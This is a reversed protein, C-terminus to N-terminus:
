NELFSHPRRGNKNKKPQKGNKMNKQPRRGNEKSTIKRTPDFYPQTGFIV